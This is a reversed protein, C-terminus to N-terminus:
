LYPENHFDDSSDEDDQLHFGSLSAIHDDSLTLRSYSLDVPHDIENEAMKAILEARRGAREEYLEGIWESIQVPQDLSTLRQGSVYSTRTLKPSVM